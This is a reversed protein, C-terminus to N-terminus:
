ECKALLFDDVLVSAGKQLFDVEVVFRHGTAARLIRGKLGALCGSRFEVPTGPGLRDELSVPVGSAILRHIQRLDRWLRTQDAVPLSRAIRGTSLAQVREERDTLLFLYSTFLPLHSTLIRGRVRCRNAVLPLYFPIGHRHLERALSKEQRPRTHLVCWARDPSGPSLLDASSFLDAPFIAPEAQLIPM